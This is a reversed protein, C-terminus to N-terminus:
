KILKNKKTDENEEQLKDDQKRKVGKDKEQESPNITISQNSNFVNIVKSLLENLKQKTFPAFANAKILNNIDEKNAAFKIIWFLNPQLFKTGYTLKPNYQLNLAYLEQKQMPKLYGSEMYFNMQNEMDKIVDRMQDFPTPKFDKPLSPQTLLERAISLDGQVLAHIHEETIDKNFFSIALYCYERIIKKGIERHKIRNFM